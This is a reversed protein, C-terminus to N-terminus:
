DRPFWLSLNQDDPKLGQRKVYRLLAEWSGRQAVTEVFYGARWFEGGWLRKRLGPLSAYLERATLSKYIQAIRSPALSPHAACLLHVHDRDAGLCEIEIEYREGIEGSIRVLERVVQPELVARRYKVSFNFHYHLDYACHSAKQIPM